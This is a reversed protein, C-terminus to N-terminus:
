EKYGLKEVLQRVTMSDEFMEAATKSEIKALPKGKFEEPVGAYVRLLKFAVKGKPRRYPLMGRIIRKVFYDPRRSWYPSHEPNAKDKLDLRQKWNEVNSRMHGSIVMKDANLLIVSDGNLLLKAIRSGLRGVIKSDGDVIHTRKEAQKQTTKQAM